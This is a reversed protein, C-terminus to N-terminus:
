AEGRLARLYTQTLSKQFLALAAQNMSDLTAALDALDYRRPSQRFIDYDLLYGESGVGSDAPILGQRFVCHLDNGLDFQVQEQFTEVGPGWDQSGVPGLLESSVFRVWDEPTRAEDESLRNVYRLGLREEIRPEAHGPFAELLAVVRDRFDGSWRQYASTELAVHDPMVSVAWDGTESRLRWGRLPASGVSVPQVMALGPRFDLQASAMQIPDIRPYPGDRGGLSEHISLVVDGDSVAINQEYRLQCVVIALPSRALQTDDVEPLALSM